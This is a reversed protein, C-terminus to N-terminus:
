ADPGRNRSRRGRGRAVQPESARALAERVTRAVHESVREPGDELRPRLWDSLSPDRMFVSVAAVVQGRGALGLRLARRLATVHVGGLPEANVLGVFRSPGDHVQLAVEVEVEGEASRAVLPAPWRGHPATAVVLDAVGRPSRM